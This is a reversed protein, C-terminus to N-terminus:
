IDGRRIAGAAWMGVSAIAVLAYNGFATLAVVMGAKVWFAETLHGGAELIDAIGIAYSWGARFVWAAGGFSLASVPWVYFLVKTEKTM